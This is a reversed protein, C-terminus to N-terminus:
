GCVLPREKAHLLPGEYIGDSDAVLRAGKQERGHLIARFRLVHACLVTRIGNEATRLTCEQGQACVRVRFITKIPTIEVFACASASIAILFGSVYWTLSPASDSKACRM